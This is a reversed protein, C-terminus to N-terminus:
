WFQWWKTEKAKLPKGSKYTAKVAASGAVDPDVLSETKHHDFVDPLSWFVTRAFSDQANRRTITVEGRPSVSLTPKTVRMIPGLDRTPHYFEGAPSIDRIKLFLHELRDRGWYVLTFDRRLGDVNSFMQVYEGLKMGPVVSISRWSGEYRAGGHVLVPRILYRTERLMPFHRDAFVEFNQRHSPDIAFRVTFPVDKAADLREEGRSSKVKAELCLRDPAGAANGHLTETSANIVSVVGRIREGAVYETHDPKFSVSIESASRQQALATFAAAALALAAAARLTAVRCSKWFTREM